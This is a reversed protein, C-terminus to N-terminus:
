ALEYEIRERDRGKKEKRLIKMRGIESTNRVHTGACPCVDFGTIDVIRLIHVSQPILDLNSRISDIRKELEGRDELYIRVDIHKVCIDNCAKEIAVLDDDTFKVPSFDVRSRNAHVQNGVTRAKFMDFVVGSIIHQSTHFRM